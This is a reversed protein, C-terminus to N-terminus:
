DCQILVARDIMLMVRSVEPMFNVLYKLTVLM